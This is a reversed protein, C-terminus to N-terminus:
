QGTTPRYGTNEIVVRINKATADLTTQATYTTGDQLAGERIELTVKDEPKDLYTAVSLGLLSDTAPDVEIAM